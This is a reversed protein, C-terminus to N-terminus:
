EGFSVTSTIESDTVEAGDNFQCFFLRDHGIPDTCFMRWTAGNTTETMELSVGSHSFSPVYPWILHGSAADKEKLADVLGSWRPGDPDAVNYYCLRGIWDMAQIADSTWQQGYQYFWRGMGNWLFAVTQWSGAVASDEDCAATWEDRMTGWDDGPPFWLHASEYADTAPGIGALMLAKATYYWRSHPGGTASDGGYISFYTSRCYKKAHAFKNFDLIWNRVMTWWFVASIDMDDSPYIEAEGMDELESTPRGTSTGAIARAVYILARYVEDVIYKQVQEETVEPDGSTTPMTSWYKPDEGEAGTDFPDNALRGIYTYLADDSDLAFAEGGFYDEFTESTMVDKAGRAVARYDHGLGAGGGLIKYEKDYRIFGEHSLTSESTGIGTEKMMEIPTHNSINHKTSFEREIPDYREEPEGDSSAPALTTLSRLTHIPTGSITSAEESYYDDYLAEYKDRFAQLNLLNGSTPGIKAAETLSYEKIVDMEGSYRNTILDLHLHYLFPGALWPALGSGRPWITDMEDVFFENFSGDIESASCKQEALEIYRDIDDKFLLYSNMIYQVIEATRDEVKVTTIYYEENADIVTSGADIGAIGDSVVSSNKNYFDQYEFAMLRYDASAGPDPNTADEVFKLNRILIYSYNKETGYRTRSGYGTETIYGSDVMLGPTSFGEFDIPQAEQQITGVKPYGAAYTINADMKNVSAIFYSYDTSWKITRHLSVDSPKFYRHLAEDGFWSIVKAFPFIRALTSLNGAAKEYDFYFYGFNRIHQESSAGITSDTSDYDVANYIERGLNRYSYVIPSNEEVYGEVIGEEPTPPVYPLGLLGRRDIVKINKNLKKVLRDESSLIRIVKNVRKKYKTFFKGAPGSNRKYPYAIKYQNLKILLEVDDKYENLIYLVNTLADTLNKGPSDFMGSMLDQFSQIIDEHTLNDTKYYFSDINRLPTKYYLNGETDFYNIQTPFATDGGNQFVKVYSINSTQAKINPLSMLLNNDFTSIGDSTASLVSPSDLNVVESAELLSVFAFVYLDGYSSGRTRDGWYYVPNFMNKTSDPFPLTARLSAIAFGSKDYAIDPVIEFDNLSYQHFLSRDGAPWEGAESNFKDESTWSYFGEFVNRKGDIIDVANAINRSMGSLSIGGGEGGAGSSEDTFAADLSISEPSFLCYIKLDRDRLHQVYEDLNFDTATNFLLSMIIEISDDNVYVREIYPSPLYRGFNNIVNGKYILDPM